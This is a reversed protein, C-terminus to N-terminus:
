DEAGSVAPDKAFALIRANALVPRELPVAHGAGPVIEAHAVPLFEGARALAHRPRVLTSREGLIVQVPVTVRRLEEDGFARAPRRNPRFARAGIMVPRMIEPREVLAHNALLRALAPRWRRPAAMGLAGLAMTLMFRPPVKGLGGPDLLTLTSLRDPGYIGQNLTLWGGYSLGVLHVQRLGLGALVQDLWAAADASGTVPARQESGGPDDITDIAYVPHERGLATIQPYWTSANAGHGHLLVIPEAKAAGYRYVRTTGFTTEVDFRDYPRPWLAMAREYAELFRQKAAPSTFQGIQGRAGGDKM